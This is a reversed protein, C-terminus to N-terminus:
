AGSYFDKILYAAPLLSYTTRNVVGFPVDCAGKIQWFFINTIQMDGDDKLGQLAQFFTDYWERQGALDTCGYNDKPCITTGYEQIDIQQNPVGAQALDAKVLNIFSTLSNKLDLSQVTYFCPCSSNCIADPSCKSCDVGSTWSPNYYHVSTINTYGAILKIQGEKTKTAGIGTTVPRHLPDQAYVYNLMEIVWNRQIQNSVDAENNIDWAYISNYFDPANNRIGNLFAAFNSKSTSIDGPFGNISFNRERDVLLPEIKINNSAAWSGIQELDSYTWGDWSFIRLANCNLNKVVDKHNTVLLMNGRQVNCGHLLPVFKTKKITSNFKITVIKKTEDYKWSPTPSLAEDYQVETGNILIRKPKERSYTQMIQEGAVDVTFQVKNESTYGTVRNILDQMDSAANIALLKIWFNPIFFSPLSYQIDYTAPPVTLLYNGSSDTNTSSSGVTIIAQVPNNTADILRGSVKVPELQLLMVTYGSLLIADAANIVGTQVTPATDWNGDTDDIKSYSLQGTVGQLRFTTTGTSKHIILIKLKGNNIWALSRINDYSSSSDVISDGVAINNGILKQVYYPYWPKNDDSNVLGFGFGGTESAQAKTKSSSFRYYLLYSLNNKIAMRIQLAHTVAGLMQQIRPDTGTEYAWSLSTESILAPLKVNHANYWRERAEDVTYFDKNPEYNLQEAKQLIISDSDTTTASCYTHTMSIFDLGTANAIFNDFVKKFNVHDSSVLANPNIQHINQYCTNYVETFYKVRTLNKGGWEYYHGPENYIEYYRVPLGIEKFHKAWEGCYAAFSEPYPLGTTKNIAMGNPVYTASGSSDAYGLNVLPEAGIGYMGRIVTDVNTWDFTGTKTAENWSICPDPSKGGDRWDFMRILKLNADGALKRLDFSNNWEKWDQDIMAGLLLSNTGVVKSSDVTIVASQAFSVEPLCIFFLFTLTTLFIFSRM